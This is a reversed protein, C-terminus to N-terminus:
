AIGIYKLLAGGNFLYVAIAWMITVVIWGGFFFWSYAEFCEKFYKNKNKIKYIIAFIVSLVLTTCLLIVTGNIFDHSLIKSQLENEQCTMLEATYNTDCCSVLAVLSFLLILIKKM